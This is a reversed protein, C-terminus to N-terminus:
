RHGPEPPSVSLPPSVAINPDDELPELREMMRPSVHAIGARDFLLVEEVGMAAATQWWREPGAVFLARAAANATVADRHIVTVARAGDAPRGTRPDILHHYTRGGHFFSREYDGATFVSADGSIEVIGYVGSGSPRRIAIRWPKGARDGIARLDNGIRLLAHRIGRERLYTFALDMGYGAAIAEFDLQVAPNGSVIELGDITLDSMSPKAAIVREIEAQAPPPGCYPPPRDFGWLSTLRGTAPNLLGDSQESYRQGLRILPLISPPAIFPESQRLLRNVREMAGVRATQWRDEMFAFDRKIENSIEEALAIDIAVLSLSADSGFAMFPTTYVPAEGRCGVLIVSLLVLLALGLGAGSLTRQDRSM